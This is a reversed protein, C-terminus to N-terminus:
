SDPLVCKALTDVEEITISDVKNYVYLCPMYSRQDAELVDIFQDVTVDQRFLVEAHFIRYEHLIGRVLKETIWTLNVTSNFALGGGKKVKFYIDPKSTNLRIGVEYLEKELKKRQTDGKTADMMMLILDQRNTLSLSVFGSLGVCVCLHVPVCVCLCVPVCACLRVATKACSVVQRGRGRGRAAGEIIGPMDLLQINAGNYNLVGPICTLTTFEYAAQESKTDTLESLITSKGM